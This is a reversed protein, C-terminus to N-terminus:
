SEAGACPCHRSESPPWRGARPSLFQDLARVPRGTGDTGASKRRNGKAEDYGVLTNHTMNFMILEGTSARFLDLHGVAVNTAIVIRDKFKVEPEVPATEKTLNDSNEVAPKNEEVTPTDSAGCAALSLVMVLALLMAILKKM